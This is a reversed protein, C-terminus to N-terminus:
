QGQQQQNNNGGGGTAWDYIAAGGAPGIVNRWLWGGAKKAGNVIARGRNGGDVHELDALDITKFENM